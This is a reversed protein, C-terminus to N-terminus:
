DSCCFWSKEIFKSKSNLTCFLLELLISICNQSYTLCLGIEIRIFRSGGTNRGHSASSLFVQLQRLAQYHEAALSSSVHNDYRHHLIVVLITIIALLSSSSSSWLDLAPTTAVQSSPPTTWDQLEAFFTARERWPQLHFFLLSSFVASISQSCVKAWSFSCRLRLDLFNPWPADCM